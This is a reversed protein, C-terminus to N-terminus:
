RLTCPFCTICCLAVIFANRPWSKIGCCCCKHAGDACWRRGSEIGCLDTDHYEESVKARIQLCSQYLSYAFFVCGVCAMYVVNLIREQTRPREADLHQTERSLQLLWLMVLSVLRLGVILAAKGATTFCIEMQISDHIGTKCWRSSHECNQEFIDYKKESLSKIARLLSYENTYSDVYYLRYMTGKMFSMCKAYSLKTEVIAAFPGDSTLTYEQVTIETAAPDQKTVIAHHWILYPRHWSVHDGPRLVSPDDISEYSWHSRHCVASLTAECRQCKVSTIFGMEDVEKVRLEQPDDSGCQTCLAGDINHRRLLTLTSKVVTGVDDATFHTFKDGLIEKYSGEM